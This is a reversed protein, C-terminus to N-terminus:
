KRESGALRRLAAAETGQKGPHGVYWVGVGVPARQSAAGSFAVAAAGADLEDLLYELGRRRRFFHSRNDDFGDLAFPSVYNRRRIEQAPQPRQRITVADQEDHILDLATHSAGSAHPRALVKAYDRVNQH